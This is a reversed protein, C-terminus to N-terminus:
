FVSTYKIIVELNVVYLHNSASLDLAAQEMYDNPFLGGGDRLRTGLPCNPVHRPCRKPYGGSM